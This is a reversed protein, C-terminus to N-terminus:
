RLQESIQLVESVAKETVEIADVVLHAGEDSRAVPPPALLPPMERNQAAGNKKRQLFFHM